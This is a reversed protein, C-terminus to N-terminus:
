NTTVFALARVPSGSGNVIKLPAAVLLAGKPPLREVNQLGSMGYIDAGLLLTHVPMPPKLKMAQGADTGVTETGYGKARRAIVCEVFETSAGPTHCGDERINLYDSGSHKSWGTKLVIWSGPEIEGHQREFSDLDEKNALYDSNAEVQATVDIVAIPGIFREIAAADATNNPLSRGSRWHAPLDVHTGTHESLTLKQWYSVANASDLSSGIEAIMRPHAPIHTPLVIVATDPGLPKTLDIVQISGAVLGRLFLQTADLREGSM